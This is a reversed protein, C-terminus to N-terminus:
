NRTTTDTPGEYNNYDITDATTTYTNKNHCCALCAHHHVCSECKDENVPIYNDQRIYM